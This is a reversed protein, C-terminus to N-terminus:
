VEVKEVWVVEPKREADVVWSGRSEGSAKGSLPSLPSQFTSVSARAAAGSNVHGNKLDKGLAYFFGVNSVLCATGM